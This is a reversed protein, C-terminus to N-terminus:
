ILGIATYKELLKLTRSFRVFIGFLMATLPHWGHYKTLIASSYGGIAIFGAHGLSIQGAYGMLMNLGNTVLAYIGAFVLVSLYYKNNVFLPLLLIVLFFITLKIYNAKGM